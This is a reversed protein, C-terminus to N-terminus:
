AGGLWAAYVALAVLVLAMCVWWRWSPSTRPSM